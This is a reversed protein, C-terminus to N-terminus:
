GGNTFEEAGTAATSTGIEIVQADRSCHISQDFQQEDPFDQAVIWIQTIEDSLSPLVSLASRTRDRDFFAFPEDLFVFQRSQVTSNVLEQSLALRVALMIQRQTGSSIEELDMFDRKESSFVRVTLDDDIQLHEYRGETFMPLTRSVLDRLDRNFRQSLNRTAGALLERALERLHIRRDHEATRQELSEITQNFRDAKKLREKERWIQQDFRVLDEQMMQLQNRMAALERGVSDRVESPSASCDAVRRCLVSREHEDLRMETATFPLVEDQIEDSESSQTDDTEANEEEVTEFSPQPQPEPKLAQPMDPQASAELKESLSAGAVQLRRIRGNLVAVRIWLLLFLVAAGAAGYLLWPIYQEGWQPIYQTLLEQLKTTYAHQPLRTIMGWAGGLVLALLFFIFRLFKSRGRAGRASSIKPIADQYSSSAAELDVVDANLSNEAEILQAKAKELNPLDQEDVALEDLEQQVLNIESRLEAISEHEGEIEEEYEYSVYELSSIGAMAKVAYSHPHPTTIERQALYFSEIFEDYGYGLLEYVANEVADNGRALPDDEQGVLNLRVGHNGDRDLFRAVEYEQEDGVRFRLTASCRTEGWRILKHLEDMDLSFSRGFLAFCITEGITSKGSENPGDIAILGHEPLNEIELRDYKLVNQASISTIIM